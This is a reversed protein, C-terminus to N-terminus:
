PWAPSPYSGGSTPDTTTPDTTTAGGGSTGSGSATPDNGTPDGDPNDSGSATPDSGTPDGAPPVVEDGPDEDAHSQGEDTAQDPVSTLGFDAPDPHDGCDDRPDLGDSTRTSEDGQAAANQSLCDAWERVAETYAAAAERKAEGTKQGAVADEPLDGNNAHEVEQEAAHEVQDPLGPVDVAGAAHLGGVSAAAVATGLVVKGTLTAVFASVSSLM